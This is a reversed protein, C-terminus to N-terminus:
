DDPHGWRAWPSDLAEPWALVAEGHMRLMDALLDAPDAYSRPELPEHVQLYSGDGERHATVLVVPADALTAIRAAGFSGLVRRGLFDVPTRGAVDSAIALITSPKMGAVLADTGGSAPVLAGGRRVVRIHQKIHPPAEPLLADPYTLIDLDVGVRALSGFLGDYRHHHLFSLVIPRGPERRTTLWEVDRVPQRTIKRPHWRLYSRLMMQEAYGRALEPVEPARETHELLYRMQKEQSERYAQDSWLGDIRRRILTPLAAAPVLRRVQQIVEGGNV